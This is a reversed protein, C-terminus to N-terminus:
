NESSGEVKKKKFMANLVMYQVFGIMFLVGIKLVLCNKLLGLKEVLLKMHNGSVENLIKQGTFIKNIGNIVQNLLIGLSDISQMEINSDKLIEDNTIYFTIKKEKHELNRMCFHYIGRETLNLEKLIHSVGSIHYLPENQSNKVMIEIQKENEGSSSMMFSVKVPPTKIDTLNYSACFTDMGGLRTDMALSFSLFVLFFISFGLM